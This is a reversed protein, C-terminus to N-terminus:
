WYGYSRLAEEYAKDMVPHSVDQLVDKADRLGILQISDIIISCGAEQSPVIHIEEVIEGTELCSYLFLYRTRTKTTRCVINGAYVDRDKTKFHIEIEGTQSTSLTILAVRLSESPIALGACHLLPNAGQVRTQLRGNSVTLSSLETNGLWGQPNGERDFDCAYLVDGAISTLKRM